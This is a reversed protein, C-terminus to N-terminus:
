KRGAKGASRRTKEGSGPGPSLLWWGTGGLVAGFALFSLHPMGPVIGFLCVIAAAIWWVKPFAALQAVVERGIDRDTSVRSVVLGAAVSIVLAPIQAVLGDGITLLTYNQAAEALNM